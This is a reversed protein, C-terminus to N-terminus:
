HGNGGSGHAAEAPAAAASGSGAAAPVLASGSGAAAPVTASGSGAAAADPTTADVAPTAPAPTPADAAPAPAALPVPRGFKAQATPQDSRGLAPVLTSADKQADAVVLKIAHDISITYTGAPSPEVQELSLNLLQEAKLSNATKDQGGYDAATAVEATDSAYFAQLFVISVYVLVAGCVGIAVITISNLGEPGRKGTGSM